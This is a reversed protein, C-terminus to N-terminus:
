NSEATRSSFLSHAHTSAPSESAASGRSFTRFKKKAVVDVPFKFGLCSATNYMCVHLEATASNLHGSVAM